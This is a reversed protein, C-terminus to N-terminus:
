HFDNLNKSNYSKQIQEKKWDRIGNYQGPGPTEAGNKVCANPQYKLIFIEQLKQQTEEFEPVQVANILNTGM